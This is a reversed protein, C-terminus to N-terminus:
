MDYYVRVGVAHQIKPRPNEGLGIREYSPNYIAQLKWRANTSVDVGLGAFAGFDVGTLNKAKYIEYGYQNYFTMLDINLNNITIQNRSFKVMNMLPGGEVIFGFVEDDGLIRQMGAQIVIRQEAGTISFIQFNQFNPQVPGIPPTLIQITFNGNLTLKAANINIMVAAKKSMQWRAQLGILFSPNYKMNIPMDTKDFAWDGPNVNLAQAIQDPQGNGGGYETVIKQYMFSNLFDNKEGNTNYGYGDYLHATYKNAFLSGLFFGTQFGKGNPHRRPKTSEEEQQAFSSVCILFTVIFAVTKM